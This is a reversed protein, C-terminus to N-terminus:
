TYYLKWRGHVIIGTVDALLSSAQGLNPYFTLRM